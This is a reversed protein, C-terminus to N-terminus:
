AIQGWTYDETLIAVLHGERGFCTILFERNNIADLAFGIIMDPHNNETRIAFMDGVCGVFM